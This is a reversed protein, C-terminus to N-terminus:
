QASSTAANNIQIVPTSDILKKYSILDPLITASFNFSIRGEPTPNFDSIVPNSILAEGKFIDSQKSLADFNTAFGTLDLNIGDTPSFSFKMDKLSINKLIDQELKNFIPSVAVHNALLTKTEEIRNNLRILSNIDDENYRTADGRVKALETKDTNVASILSNQWLWVGGALALIVIFVIVSLLLFISMGVRTSRAVTTPSKPIFSTQMKLEM